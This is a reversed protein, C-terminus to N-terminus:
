NKYRHGSQLSGHSSLSFEAHAIDFVPLASDLQALSRMSILSGLHALDLIQARRKEELSSVTVHSVTFSHSFSHFMPPVRINRCSGACKVHEAHEFGQAPSANEFKGLCHVDIFGLVRCGLTM